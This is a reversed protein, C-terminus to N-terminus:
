QPRAYSPAPPGIFLPRLETERRHASFSCGPATFDPENRWLFVPCCQELAIQKHIIIKFCKFGLLKTRKQIHSIKKNWRPESLPKSIKWKTWPAKWDYKCEKVARWLSCSQFGRYFPAFVCFCSDGTFTRKVWICRQFTIRQVASRNVKIQMGSILMLNNQSVEFTGMNSVCDTIQARELDWQFAM